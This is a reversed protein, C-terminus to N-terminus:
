RENKPGIVTLRRSTRLCFFVAGLSISHPHFRSSSEGDRHTPAFHYSFNHMRQTERRRSLNWSLQRDSVVGLIEMRPVLRLADPVRSLFKYQAM